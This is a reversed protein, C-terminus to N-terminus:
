VDTPAVPDGVKLQGGTVIRARLGGRHLFAKRIGPQTQNELYTCPECLELGFLVVEGIRFERNVLHNLPVGVTVLNRRMAAPEIEIQYDRRAADIAEQEILTVEQAPEMSRGKQFAGQGECYRDGALGKGAIAEMKRVTNMPGAAAPATCILVLKGSFAGANQKRSSLNSKRPMPAFSWASWDITEV